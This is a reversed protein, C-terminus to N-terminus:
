TWDLSLKVGFQMQWTCTYVHQRTSTFNFQSQVRLMTSQGINLAPCCTVSCIDSPKTDLWLWCQVRFQYWVDGIAWWADVATQWQSMHLVSSFSYIAGGTAFDEAVFKQCGHCMCYVVSANNNIANAIATLFWHTVAGHQKGWPVEFCCYRYRHGHMYVMTKPRWLSMSKFDRCDSVFLTLLEHSTTNLLQQAM